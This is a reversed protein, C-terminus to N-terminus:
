RQALGSWSATSANVDERTRALRGSFWIPLIRWAGRRPCCTGSRTRSPSPFPRTTAITTCRKPSTASKTPLGLIAAASYSKDNPRPM